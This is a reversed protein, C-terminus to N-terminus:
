SFESEDTEGRGCGAQPSQGVQQARSRIANVLNGYLPDGADILGVLRWLFLGDVALLVMLSDIPNEEEALIRERLKKRRCDQVPKVLEPNVLAAALLSAMFKDREHASLAPASTSCELKDTVLMDVLARVWRGRPNPDDAIRALLDQERQRWFHELMERVLEDKSAFHYILGGKSVGAEKAVKELTMALVGDRIAVRVASELIEERSTRRVAMETASM